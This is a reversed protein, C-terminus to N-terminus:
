LLPTLFTAAVFLTAGLAGALFYRLNQRLTFAVPSAQRHKAYSTVVLAAIMATGFMRGDHPSFLKWELYWNAAVIIFVLGFATVVLREAITMPLAPDDDSV